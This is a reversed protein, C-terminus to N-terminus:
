INIIKTRATPINTSRFPFTKVTVLSVPTSTIQDKKSFTTKLNKILKPSIRRYIM